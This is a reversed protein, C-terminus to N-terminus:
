ERRELLDQWADTVVVWDYLRKDSSATKASALPNLPAPRLLLWPLLVQRRRLPADIRWRTLLSPGYSL